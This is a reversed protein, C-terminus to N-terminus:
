AEDEGPQIQGAKLISEPDTSLLPDSIAEGSRREWLLGLGGVASWSILLSTVVLPIAGQAQESAGSLNLLFALTLDRGGLGGPTLPVAAVLNSLQTALLYAQFTVAKAGGVGVGIFYVAITAFLHGGMAFLLLLAVIPPSSRILSVAAVVRDLIGKLKSPLIDALRNLGPSFRGLYPWVFFGLAGILGCVGAFSVVGLILRMERAPHNLIEPNFAVAVLTLLLLGSLGLVRDLFVTLVAEPFREKSEKRLYVMKIIDGGVGGPVFLNFFQGILALRVVVTIPLKVEIHHLLLYWRYAALVFGLGYALFALVLFRHDVTRLVQRIDLGTSVVM